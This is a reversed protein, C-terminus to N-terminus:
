AESAPAKVPLLSALVGALRAICLARANVAPPEHPSGSAASGPSCPEDLFSPPKPPNGSSSSDAAGGSRCGLDAGELGVVEVEVGVEGGVLPGASCGDMAAGEVGDPWAGCAQQLADRLDSPRRFPGGLFAYQVGPGRGSKGLFNGVHQLIHRLPVAAERWAPAGAAASPAASSSSPLRNPPWQLALAALPLPLADAAGLETPVAATAACDTDDVDESSEVGLAREAGGAGRSSSSHPADAAAMVRGMSCSLRGLCLRLYVAITYATLPAASPCDPPPMSASAEALWQTGVDALSAPSRALPGGGEAAPRPAAAFEVRPRKFRAMPRELDAAAAESCSEAAEKLGSVPAGAADGCSAVPCSFVAPSRLAAEGVMVGDCGTKFANAHIDAHCRVNGNEIVPISLAARVAAIADLDAPGARRHKTSGLRCRLRIFFACM